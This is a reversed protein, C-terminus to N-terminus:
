SRQNRRRVPSYKKASVVQPAMVEPQIRQLEQDLVERAAPHLRRLALNLDNMERALSEPLAMHSWRVLHAVRDACLLLLGEDDEARQAVLQEVRETVARGYRQAVSEVPIHGLAVVEHLVAACAALQSGGCALVLRCVDMPHPLYPIFTSDSCALADRMALVIM